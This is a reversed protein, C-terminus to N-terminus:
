CIRKLINIKDIFIHKLTGLVHLAILATLAYGAYIHINYAINGISTKQMMFDPLLNPLPFGFFMVGMGGAMSMVYGAFPVVFMLAYLSSIVVKSFINYIPKIELPAKPVISMLRIIIRLALLGLSLIGLSKHLAYFKWKLDSAPLSTMYFAIAIIASILFAMVWHM